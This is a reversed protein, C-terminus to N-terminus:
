LNQFNGLFSYSGNETTVTVMAEGTFGDQSLELSQYRGLNDTNPIINLQSNANTSVLISQDAISTITLDMQDTGQQLVFKDIINYIDLCMCPSPPPLPPIPNIIIFANTPSVISESEQNNSATEANAEVISEQADNYGPDSDPIQQWVAISDSLRTNETELYYKRLDGEYIYNTSTFEVQQDDDDNNNNDDEDCSINTFMIFSLLLLVVYRTKM